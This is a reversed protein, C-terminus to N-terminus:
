HVSEPQNQNTILEELVSGITVLELDEVVKRAKEVNEDFRLSNATIRDIRKRHQDYVELTRYICIKATSERFMPANQGPYNIYAGMEHMQLYIELDFPIRLVEADVAGRRYGVTLLILAVAVASLLAVLSIGIRLILRKKM